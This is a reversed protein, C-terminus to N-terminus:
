EMDMIETQENGKDNDMSEIGLRNYDSAMQNSEDSARNSALSDDPM